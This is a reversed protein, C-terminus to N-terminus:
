RPSPFLSRIACPIIFTPVLDRAADYPLVAAAHGREFVERTVAGSWGGEFLRHRLRYRDIRFYGEYAATKEIVQVDDARLRM